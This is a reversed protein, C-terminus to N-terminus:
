PKTADPVGHIPEGKNGKPPRSGSRDQRNTSLMALRKRVHQIKHSPVERPKSSLFIVM